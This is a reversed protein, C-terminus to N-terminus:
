EEFKAQYEELETFEDYSITGEGDKDLLHFIVRVPGFYGINECASEFESPEVSGGGDEDFFSWVEDLDNGITRELFQMFERICLTVENWLLTLVSFEVLSVQGEGSPDLYRFVKTIREKKNKKFKVFQMEKLGDEFERLTINGNGGEGDILVFCEKISEFRDAVFTLFEFVDEPVKNIDAWWMVQEELVPMRWFGYSEFMSKRIQFKRDEPACKYSAQFIGGQPMRDFSEWSRPLGTPLPDPTGDPHTVRLDLVNEPREKFALVVFQNAALRQDHYQLDYELQVQEPQIFPFFSCFGVRHCMTMFESDDKFRVRFVKENWMDVIRNFCTVFIQLRSDSDKIIGLVERVQISRM